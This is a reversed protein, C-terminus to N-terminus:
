AANVILRKQLNRIAIRGLDSRGFGYKCFGPEKTALLRAQALARNAFLAAAIDPDSEGPPLRSSKVASSNPM